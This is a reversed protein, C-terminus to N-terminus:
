ERHGTTGTAIMQRSVEHNEYFAVHTRGQILRM